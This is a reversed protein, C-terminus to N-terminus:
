RKGGARKALEVVAESIVKDLDADSVDLRFPMSPQDKNVRLHGEWSDFPFKSTDVLRFTPIGITFATSYEHQLWTFTVSSPDIDSYLLQLFAQCRRIQKDVKATVAETYTKVDEYGFGERVAVRQVIERICADRPHGYHISLFLKKQPYEYVRAGRVTVAELREASGEGNIAKLRAELEQHKAPEVDAIVAIQGEENAYWHRTWKNSLHLLDVDSRLADCVRRLLGQSAKANHTPQKVEYDLVIRTLPWKLFERTVPCLRLYKDESNFTAIAPMPLPSLKYSGEDFPIGQETMKILTADAEYQFRFPVEYYHGGGYISFYALRQMYNVEAPGPVHSRIYDLNTAQTGRGLAEMQGAVADANYLFHSNDEARWVHFLPGPDPGPAPPAAIAEEFVEELRQVHALMHAAISNALERAGDYSGYAPIRVGPNARDFEEKRKRVSELEPRTSEAIVTWTAHTFGTPTCEAFVISLDNDELLRSAAALVGKRNELVLRLRILFPWSSPHFPSIILNPHEHHEHERHPNAAWIGWCISRDYIGLPQLAKERALVGASTITVIDGFFM